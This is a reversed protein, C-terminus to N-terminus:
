QAYAIPPSAYANFTGEMPLFLSTEQDTYPIPLRLHMDEFLSDLRHVWLLCLRTVCSFQCSVDVTLSVGLLNVVQHLGKREVYAIDDNGVLGRDTHM